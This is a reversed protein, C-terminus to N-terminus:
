FNFEVAPSTWVTQAERDRRTSYNREVVPAM